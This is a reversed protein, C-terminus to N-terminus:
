VTDARERSVVKYPAHGELQNVVAKTLRFEIGRAFDRNTFIPVAVTQIDERYLSHWQYGPRPPKDYAGPREYGCGAFFGLATLLMCAPVLSRLTPRTMSAGRSQRIM